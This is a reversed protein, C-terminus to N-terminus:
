PNDPADADDLGSQRLEKAAKRSVIVTVALTAALGIGLLAWKAAGTEGGSGAAAGVSAIWVYLLTGPMIGFFTAIAYASFKVETVGFFYNQLNFPFVPSLRLLAVIKWGEAKIARDIAGFLRNNRTRKEVWGRALYRAVLFGGCAGLTAGVLVPFFGSLGFAIGAAITLPSGPALLVTAIAYIVAFAVYGWIGLSDVWGRLAELWAGLPLFSWAAVLAAVILAAAALKVWKSMGAQHGATSEPVDGNAEYAQFETM